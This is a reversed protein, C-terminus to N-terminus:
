ESCTFLYDKGWEIVKAMNEKSGMIGKEMGQTRRTGPDRKMEQERTIIQNKRMDPEKGREKNIMQKMPIAKSMTQKMGTGPVKGTIAEMSMNMLGNM